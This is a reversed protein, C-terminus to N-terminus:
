VADGLPRRWVREGDVLEHTPLLGLHRAVAASAPHDPHILAVVSTTGTEALWDVLAAAAQTAYGRGQWPVGTVWAIEAERSAPRVTAQVTGVVTGDDALRMIWNHWAERSPDAPGAVLRAYRRALTPADPPEGGTFAYLAPDALVGSMETADDVTLPALELRATRLHPTTVGRAFQTM